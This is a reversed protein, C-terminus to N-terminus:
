WGELGLQQAQKEVDEDYLAAGDAASRIGSGIEVTIQELSPGKIPSLFELAPTMAGEDVYVQLDQVMRPVDDPLTYDNLLYPGNAGVAEVEATAGAASAIFNVWEKAAELQAGETTTPIYWGAPLWVTAGNTEADEGPIAFFGVDDVNEPHNAKINALAGTLMPYHAGEGTALMALGDNFTASAFDENLYGADHVEQLKEFSRLGAPNTGYSTENATYEEAFDPYEAAVNHFDGLMLVQSTWTEQYSQIVPTYGAEAIADNNEMFADWTTPVELGLEEYIPISYMIGGSSLVGAPAGYITDDVSVVPWFSEDVNDVFPEDSLDVLNQVPNIAQFLSGSNYVFADPMDGTSLRTKVINDGETGGPRTELEVEINPHEATFAEVLAENVLLDTETNGVLVTISVAEDEGEGGGGGGGGSSCGALVLAGGAVAVLAGLAGRRTRRM